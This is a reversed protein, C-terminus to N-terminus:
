NSRERLVKWAYEKLNKRIVERGIHGKTGRTKFVEHSLKAIYYDIHYTGKAKVYLRLKKHVSLGLKDKDFDVLEAYDKNRVYPETALGLNYIKSCYRGNGYRYRDCIDSNCKSCIALIQQKNTKKKNGIGFLGM